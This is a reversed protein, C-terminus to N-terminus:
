ITFDAKLTDLNGNKYIKKQNLFSDKESIIYEYEVRTNHDIKKSLWVFEHPVEVSSNEVVILSDQIEIISETKRNENCSILSLILILFISKIKNLKLHKVVYLQITLPKLM